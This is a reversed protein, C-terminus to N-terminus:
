KLGLAYRGAQLRIAVAWTTIRNIFQKLEQGTIRVSLVSSALNLYTEYFKATQHSLGQTRSSLFETLLGPLIKNGSSPCKTHASPPFRVWVEKRLASKLDAADVM